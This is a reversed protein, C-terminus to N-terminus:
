SRFPGDPFDETMFEDGVPILTVSSSSSSQAQAHHPIIAIAFLLAVIGLSITWQQFRM